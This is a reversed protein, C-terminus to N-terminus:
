NGKKKKQRSIKPPLVYANEIDWKCNNKEDKSGINTFQCENGTWLTVANGDQFM